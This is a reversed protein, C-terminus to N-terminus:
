DFGVCNGRLAAIAPGDECREDLAQKRSAGRAVDGRWQFSPGGGEELEVPWGSLLALRVVTRSNISVFIRASPIVEGREGREREKVRGGVM